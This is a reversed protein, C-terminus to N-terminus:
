YPLTVFCLFLLLYSVFSLFSEGKYKLPEAGGSQNLKLFNPNTEDWAMFGTVMVIHSLKQFHIIEHEFTGYLISPFFPYISTACLCETCM